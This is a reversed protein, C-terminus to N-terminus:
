QKKMVRAEVLQFEVPSKENILKTSIIKYKFNNRVLLNNLIEFHGLTKSFGILLRGNKNLYLKSEKIFRSISNYHSDFVSKELNGLKDKKTFGFPMAWFITDFKENLKLPNFLDGEYVKSKHTFDHIKLNEKTNRVADPNIDIAVVKSAGKILAFVSIAGSGSGMELFFKGKKIPIEKSFFETSDFFKPSFVNPHVIFKKGLIKIWYPNTIKQSEELLSRTENLLDTKETTKSIM